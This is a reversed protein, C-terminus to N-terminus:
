YFMCNVNVIDTSANPPEEIADNCCCSTNDIPVLAPQRDDDCDGYDPSENEPKHYPFDWTLQQETCAALKFHTPDSIRYNPQVGADVPLAPDVMLPSEVLMPEEHSTDPPETSTMIAETTTSKAVTQADDNQANIIISYPEISILRQFIRTWVRM